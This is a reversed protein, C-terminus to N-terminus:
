PYEAIIEYYGSVGLLLISFKQYKEGIIRKLKIKNRNM